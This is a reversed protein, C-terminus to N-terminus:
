VKQYHFKHKETYKSYIVCLQVKLSISRLRPIKFTCTDRDLSDLTKCHDNIFSNMPRTANKLKSALPSHSPMSCYIKSFPFCYENFLVDRSIYIRDSKTLCKYGKHKFSYGLFTWEESRFQFKHANYSRTNPYCACGFFNLKTYDPIKKSFCSSLLTVMLWLHLCDILLIPQPEFLRM